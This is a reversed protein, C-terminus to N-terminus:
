VVIGIYDESLISGSNNNTQMEVIETLKEDKFFMLRGDPIRAVMTSIYDCNLEKCKICMRSLLVEYSQTIEGFLVGIKNNKIFRYIPRQINILFNYAFSPEHRMIRDGYIIENIKFNGVPAESKKSYSRDILLIKEDPFSLLLEKYQSKKQVIWFVNVGKTEIAKAMEIFVPTKDFNCVFCINRM